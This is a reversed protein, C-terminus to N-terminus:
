GMGKGRALLDRGGFMGDSRIVGRRVLDKKLARIPDPDLTRLAAKASLIREMTEGDRRLLMERCLAPAVNALGAVMGYAGANLSELIARERGQFVRFGASQLKLLARFYDWDGSSDKIAAIRPDAACAKVTEIPLMRDAHIEPNNYLVLPLPSVELVSRIKREPDGPGFLPALVVTQAGCDAAWAILELTEPLAPASVGVWLPVRNRVCESSTRVIRKKEELTLHQFEGTTGLIFLADARSAVLFDALRELGTVDVSSGFRPTIVPVVLRGLPDSRPGM